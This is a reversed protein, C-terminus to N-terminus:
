VSSDGCVILSTKLMNYSQRFKESDSNEIGFHAKCYTVIAQVFMPNSEDVSLGSMSLDIVCADILMQIETDYETVDTPIRLSPKVVSVQM